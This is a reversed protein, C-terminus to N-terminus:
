YGPNQALHSNLDLESKPIPFLEQKNTVFKRNLENIANIRDNAIGLTVLDFWRQGEFGFEIRREHIIEQNFARQSLDEEFNPMQVRSRVQNAAEYALSTPGNVQNEAEALLLLLDAYRLIIVDLSRDTSAQDDATYKRLGFDTELSANGARGLFRGFFYTEGPLYTTAALRPDRNKYPNQADYGSSPDNIPKGESTYFDNVFNGHVSIRATQNAQNPAYNNHFSQGQGITADYKVQFIVESNDEYAEQFLARYNALGTQGNGVTLLKLGIQQALSYAAKLVNLAETWDRSGMRAEYLLIKGHMTIAALQTIRGVQGNYPSAPLATEAESLENIIFTILEEHSAQEVRQAETRSISTTILPAKGYLYTLRMYAFARLTRAEAQIVSREEATVDGPADMHDLLANARQIVQFNYLYYDALEETNDINVVGKAFNIFEASRTNLMANDSIGELQIPNGFAGTQRLSNYIGFLGPELSSADAYFVDPDLTDEPTKELFTDSCSVLLGILLMFIPQYIIKKISSNM